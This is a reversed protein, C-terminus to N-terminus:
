AKQSLHMKWSSSCDEHNHMEELLVSKKIRDHDLYALRLASYNKYGEKAAVFMIRLSEAVVQRLELKDEVRELVILVLLLFTEVDM